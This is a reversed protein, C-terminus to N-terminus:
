NMDIEYSAVGVTNSGNAVLAISALILDTGATGVSGQIRKATSSAATGADGSECFRYFAATGSAAIIASWVEALTKPLVGAAATGFTLGTSGDANLTLTALLTAGTTADDPTLLPNSAASFIKLFGATLAAKVSGTGLAYNRLGTSAQIAM